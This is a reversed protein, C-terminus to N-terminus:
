EQKDSWPFRVIFAGLLVFQSDIELRSDDWKHHTALVTRNILWRPCNISWLNQDRITWELNPYRCHLVNALWKIAACNSVSLWQWNNGSPSYEMHCTSELFCGNGCNTFRVIDIPIMRHYLELDVIYLVMSTTPCQYSLRYLCNAKLLINARTLVFLHTYIINEGPSCDSINMIDVRFFIVNKLTSSLNITRSILESVANCM